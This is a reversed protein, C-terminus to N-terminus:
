VTSSGSIGSQRLDENLRDIIKRNAEDVKRQNPKIYIATTSNGYSHGLGQAIVENPIDIDAALTAWTHRAWYTSVGPIIEKLQKNIKYMFTHHDANPNKRRDFINILWDQGRYKDIIALAEPEVKISYLKGTKARRYEIRGEPTIERLTCLDATNIGILYFMLMFIDSARSGHDRIIRLQDLTLTRKPTEEQKVSFCRFPYCDAEIEESKILQNFVARLTRLLIATTNVSNTKRLHAEFDCLWRYNMDKMVLGDLDTFRGIADLCRQYIARNSDTRLLRMKASFADRVPYTASKGHGSLAREVARKLRDPTSIGGKTEIELLAREIELKKYGILQNYLLKNEHRVVEHGNWQKAEIDIGLPWYIRNGRRASISFKLPYKGGSKERRMDLITTVKAM